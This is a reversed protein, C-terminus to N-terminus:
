PCVDLDLEDLDNDPVESLGAPVCGTFRNEALRLQSLKALGDLETPIQGTLRNESLWLRELNTLRGLEAPISEELMNGHLWLSRLTDLDGLMSPIRGSLQNRHLRLRTLSTMGGLEPPISGSLSNSHLNLDRLGSLQSLEQPIGGTLETTHLWLYRLSSMEGLEPPITGGLPNKHLYLYVLGDMDGFWAPVGGTLKNSQLKLRVLSTMGRLDPIAGSLENGWLWLERVNRLTGLWAPVIGRLDNNSLYLQELKTLDSLDPIQGRLENNNLGLVKLNTLNGLESPIFGKLNNDRLNLYTLSSLRGLESPISGGLGEARINLWMVRAPNGQLTIGQWDSIPIDASWDLSGRAALTDRVSLLTECDSILWTNTADSVAGGTVCISPETSSTATESWLGAGVRSVARTQVDYQTSGTLGTIAFELSGGSASTWADEVVTWNSEASEDAITRIYRLDYATLDSGGTETPPTWLVKLERDGSLVESISPASPARSVAITYTNISLGDHSTVSIRIATVGIGLDIQHGELSTDADAIPRQNRDLFEVVADHESVPTVTVRAASSLATYGTRYPDFPQVLEGPSISLSELLVDCFQLSFDDFDNSAVDRLGPPACGDLLNQRLTLRQLNDLNSLSEPISGTLLNERLLLQELNTLNGLEPPIPGTLLNRWLSLVELNALNGLSSPLPGSLKNQALYIEELNAIEGLEQPISGSLNNGWLSLAQLNPLEGLWVPLTGTLENDALVLRQLNALGGLEAPLPGTLKNRWLSLERLNTLDGLSAPISGTLRNQSLYLEQLNSLSGLSSPIPGSLRNGWLTLEELHTLDGLWTPLTGTLQNRSLALRKLESLRGLETPIAGNLDMDHLDLETVRKPTGEVTVGQWNGMLANSSWNLTASGALADRAALLANCDSVLGPNLDPRVVVGSAACVGSVIPIPMGTLPESWPGAGARNVARVQVDYWAGGVLSPIAYEFSGASETNWVDEVVTWNSDVTEDTSTQIYRLDYSTVQSSGTDAPANWAVMLTGVDAMVSNLTPAGPPSEHGYVKINWSDLAGGVTPIHDTIRLKWAGNPDEGLHKASGFRFSGNLDVHAFSRDEDTRTDFPVSLQSVAGSPSELEITLDRFSGHRFSTNIEVFEVFRVDTNLRLSTEVTAPPGIIPADPIVLNLSNSTLLVSELSPLSRWKKALDVAAKADVVGFGYEHNFHYRDEESQPGYKRTGEQWGTNRADNKRASGALVLKVDRWTLDPNASRVLAAVGAVIPTSSSTGGFEEYYRDSNETTLIGQHFDTEDNSPACVWLNAGLESFGSRTDHDNVACVATVAYHNVYEDFNSNDGEEHGNGASFVYLTGKDGYGMRVGNEISRKWFANAGDLGPGDRPGWSNNSVATVGANRSMADAINSVTREGALFNYGYVTARPAVGRVGINNDRAAILGAVHTGHHEFPIYIDENGTYDHNRSTDVNDRLDEHTYYMGDDVIAVNVGEGKIGEEWVPEVNIDTESSNDLHWQCAYLSDSILPNNLQSTKAECEDIFDTYRVDEFAHITYPVPYSTVDTPASIKVYYTGPGFDDRIEFGDRQGARPEPYVNITIEENGSDFVQVELPELPLRSWTNQSELYRFLSPNKAYVVVDTPETFELRFYGADNQSGITGPTPADMSLRTATDITNGIDSVTEAYLTYDGIHQSLYSVVAVYYVGPSLSARLHFNSWRNIMRSDDNALLRNGRSDFLYGVTDLQGTTYVWVDTTGSRGSLDLRFVDQDDAPDIRGEISSGLPLNTPTSITNGHDDAEQGGAGGASLLFLMLVLAVAFLFTRVTLPSSASVQASAFSM